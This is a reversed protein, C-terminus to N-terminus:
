LTAKKQISINGQNGDILIIDGTNLLRTIGNCGVLCPKRYERSWISAHTLYGGYEVLIARSDLLKMSDQATLVSCVVIKGFINKNDFDNNKIVICEGEIEPFPFTAKGKLPCQSIEIKEIYSQINKVISTNTVIKNQYPYHNLNLLLFGNKKRKEINHVVKNIDIKKELLNLFEQFHIYQKFITIPLEIQYYELLKQMIKSYIWPEKNNPDNKWAIFIKYNEGKLQEQKQGGLNSILYEYSYIKAELEIIEKVKSANLFNNTMKMKQSLIEIQNRINQYQNIFYNIKSLSITELSNSDIPPQNGNFGHIQKQNKPYYLTITETIKNQIVKNKYKKIGYNYISRYFLTRNNNKFNCWCNTEIYEVIRM